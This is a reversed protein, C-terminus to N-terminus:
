ALPGLWGHTILVSLILVCLNGLSHLALPLLITGSRLFAWVLFFGAVANDPSPNGYFVHLLSFLVGCVVICGVPRLLVVCPICVVLRYIPEEILPAQICMWVFYEGAKTLPISHSTLHWGAVRYTLVALSVLIGMALGILATAKCWYLWGQLPRLTLGLSPLDWRTLKAYLALAIVAPLCRWM